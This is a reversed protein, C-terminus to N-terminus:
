PKEEVLDEAENINHECQGCSSWYDPKEPKQTSVMLAFQKLRAVEAKLRDIEAEATEALLYRVNFFYGAEDAYGIHLGKKNVWIEKPPEM